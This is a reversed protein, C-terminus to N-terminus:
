HMPPNYHFINEAQSDYVSSVNSEGELYQQEVPSEGVLVPTPSLSALIPRRIPSSVPNFTQPRDQFPSFPIPRSKELKPSAQWVAIPDHDSLVNPLWRFEERGSQATMVRKEPTPLWRSTIPRPYVTSHLQHTALTQATSFPLAHEEDHSAEFSRPTPPYLAYENIPVFDRMRPTPLYNSPPAYISSTSLPPRQAVQPSVYFPNDCPQQPKQWEVEEFAYNDLSERADDEYYGQTDEYYMKSARPVYIEPEELLDLGRVFQKSKVGERQRNLRKPEEKYIYRDWDLVHGSRGSLAANRVPRTPRAPSRYLRAQNEPKSVVAGRVAKLDEQVSKESSSVSAKSRASSKYPPQLKRRRM